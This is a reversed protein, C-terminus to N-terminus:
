RKSIDEFSEGGFPSPVWGSIGKRKAVLPQSHVIPIKLALNFTIEDAQQYLKVREAANSSSAGKALIANLDKLDLQKGENDFLDSIPSAFHPDFFNQPDGYDGTWGLMFAQFGPVKRRDNLYAAWDKTNLKVKIGIASLDAAMAEAIEKPTPYYPRSVPMYWFDLDFGNPYGAEALMAKAKTPNFEYDTVNASWTSKFSAPTFHGNTVGLKGWFAEVIAKKNIAMAIATRVKNDALPKHSPNLALYGVNFSARFVADLNPDKQLDALNAPPIDTTFDIGGSKLEALRAAPDKIFRVVLGDTKPLGKKWFTPNKDLILRDGTRWEKFKFPGTGVAGGAPTGYRSGLAKIAAPSAIGFYVSGIAAPFAPFPSNLVFKITNKDPVVIEKLVSGADGKPGGFLEGWIEYESGGTLRSPDSKDWWRNVNFRVAEADFDTGDHFKVGSRLRFTWTKSDASAFWSTALAAITETSGPKFDVLTDYVQRQAYLSIGDTVNGSELNIIEGNSGFVLTKQALGLSAVLALTLIALLRKM